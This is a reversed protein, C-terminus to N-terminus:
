LYKLPGKFKLIQPISRNFTKCGFNFDSVINQLMNACDLLDPTIRSALCSTDQAYSLALFSAFLVALAFGKM